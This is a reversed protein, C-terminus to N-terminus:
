PKGAGGASLDSEYTESLLLVAVFSVAAVAVIYLSVSWSAGTTALLRVSVLPALAAGLVGALAYSLSSGSYRVRTDFLESFFAGMPGYTASWGFMGVSFALAILAPNGTDVLWFMPFAWLGMFATSLLTLNRRGVRDSIGAFAVRSMPTRGEM